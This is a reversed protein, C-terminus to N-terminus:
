SCIGGGEVMGKDGQAEAMSIVSQITMLLASILVVGGILFAIYSKRQSKNLLYTLAKQGIYTAILGLVFCFVAYDYVLLGFVLFSTTATFSTFLIMCASTASSVEPPIGMALMLPGFVIGGGIGFMGSFFGAACCILPYILTAKGDWRIDGEVYTYGCEQKSEFQNLLYLRSIFTIYVIFLLMLINAFWFLTSGCTIGLPSSFSGTSGGKVINMVLVVLFLIILIKVNNIPVHREEQLIQIRKQEKEDLITTSHPSVTPLPVPPPTLTHTNHETDAEEAHLQTTDTPDSSSVGISQILEVMEEEELDEEQQHIMQQLISQHQRKLVISEKHYMQFAKQFTTYATVCLLLVLLLVVKDEPLLKNLLAGGLAGAITLPEMLLIFDWDILPRDAYPHRKYVNIWTNAISGGLVTTNSLPIAYKPRFHLILIYIPVLIGGGGIGGGAALFLGVFALFFTLYDSSDLPFLPPPYQKQSSLIRHFFLLSEPYRPYIAVLFLSIFLLGGLIVVLKFARYNRHSKSTHFFRRNMSSM